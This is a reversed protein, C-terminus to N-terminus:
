ITHTEANHLKKALEYNENDFNQALKIVIACLYELVAHLISYM